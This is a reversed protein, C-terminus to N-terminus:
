SQRQEEPADTAGQQELISCMQEMYDRAADIKVLSFCRSIPHNFVLLKDGTEIGFQRRAEAPIVVQGREGVTVTGYFHEALSAKPPAM